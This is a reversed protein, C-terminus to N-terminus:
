SACGVQAVRATRVQVVQGTRLGYPHPSQVSDTGFARRQAASAASAASRRSGPLGPFRTNLPAALRAQVSSRHKVFAEVSTLHM